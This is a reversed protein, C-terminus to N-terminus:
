ERPKKSAFIVVTGALYDHLARGKSSFVSTLFALGASGVVLLYGLTQRLAMSGISPIRGDMGVIRIGTAFKGISRGSIVPLVILNSFGLLLSLLWGINNLESNLLAAGDNGYLRSLLLFIAPCAVLLIYDICASGLRLLFPAHVSEPQFDIVKEAIIRKKPPPGIAKRGPKVKTQTM